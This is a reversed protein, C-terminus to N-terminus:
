LALVDSCNTLMGFLQLCICVNRILFVCAAGRGDTSVLRIVARATFPTGSSYVNTKCSLYIYFEFYM